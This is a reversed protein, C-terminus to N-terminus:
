QRKRDHLFEYMDKSHRVNGRTSNFIQKGQPNYITIVFRQNREVNHITVMVATEIGKKDSYVPVASIWIGSPVEPTPSPLLSADATAQPLGGPDGSLEGDLHTLWGSSSKGLGVLYWEGNASAALVRFDLGPAAAAMQSYDLGPGRYISAARSTTFRLTEAGTRTEVGPESTADPTLTTAAQTVGPLQMVAFTDAPAPSALAAAPGALLGVIVLPTCIYVFCLKTQM